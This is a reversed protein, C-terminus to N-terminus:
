GGTDNTAKDRLDILWKKMDPVSMALPPLQVGQRLQVNPTISRLETEWRDLRTMIDALNAKSPCWEGYRHHTYAYVRM